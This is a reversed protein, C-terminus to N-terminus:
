RIDSSFVKPVDIKGASKGDLGIVDAKM